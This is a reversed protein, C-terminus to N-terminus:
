LDVPDVDVRVRSGGDRLKQVAPRLRLKVRHLDSSQLLWRGGDTTPAPGRLTAEDAVTKELIEDAKGSDGSVEIAVLEGIPPLDLEARAELEGEVFGLPRGARLAIYVPNGPHATQVLCRRGRGEGVALACRVLARMADEAARYNPAHVVADMGVAVTLDFSAEGALDRETGVVVPGGGTAAAVVGRISRGLDEVVRGIGVGLPTFREGGCSPCASNELGCRPCRGDRGVVSGCAACRRVDGCTTCRFAAAFARRPVLVFTRGGRAATAAIAARTRELVVPAGPPEEARDAIEVLPWVRGQPQHIEAGAALVEPSPLPGAFLVGFREVAARRRAVERVHVTPTQPSKMARRSEDVVVMLGPPGGPWMAIERTGVLLTGTPARTRAWARTQEAAPERSTAVVVRDGYPDRLADALRGVEDVTPGIVIVNEGNDLVPAAAGAVAEALRRGQVLYQPRIRAGAVLREGLGPVPEDLTPVDGTSPLAVRRPLNPPSTAGLVAALPAVYYAAIWRATQLLRDDFIPFEGSVGVVPRLEAREAGARVSTVYGRVKRGGLPVRVITGVEITGLEPPVRYSFGDDVSFTALNPVVQATTTLQASGRASRPDRGM